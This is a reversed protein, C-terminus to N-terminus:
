PKLDPMPHFRFEAPPADGRPDITLLLKDGPLLEATWNRAPRYSSKTTFRLSKEQFTWRGQSIFKRATTSKGRVEKRMFEAIEEVSIDQARVSM